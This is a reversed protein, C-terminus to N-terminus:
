AWQDKWRSGGGLGPIDITLADELSVKGSWGAPLTLKGDTATVKNDFIAGGSYQAYPAEARTVIVTYTNVSSDAATVIITITNVGVNLAIAASPDGSATSIGNVTVSATVDDVTPTVTLSIVSNTVRQTYDATGEAFPANLAGSSVSLDRLYANSSLRLWKAYLTTDGALTLTDEGTYSRGNGDALTNWGVFANGIKTLNGTNGYVSATVGLGYSSSDVPVDGDTEGNGNYILSARLYPYGDNLSPDIGWINWEWDTYTNQLKMDVTSKGDGKNLDSQASTETNYFSNSITGRNYGALGGVHDTGSVSGIAYSDSITNDNLGVLGGVNYDTGSVSGTAYSNNITGRTNCGVLGGIYNNTGSVIGTVYSNSITGDNSGVLGGVYYNGAIDVNEMVMNTVMSGEAVYGFLGQYEHYPRDIRLNTIKYGNGNM